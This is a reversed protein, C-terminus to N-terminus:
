RRPERLQVALSDLSLGYGLPYLLLRCNPSSQSNGTLRAAYAAHQRKSHQSERFLPFISQISSSRTPDLHLLSRQLFQDSESQQM